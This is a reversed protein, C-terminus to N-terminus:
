SPREGRNQTVSRVSKRGTYFFYIDHTPTPATERGRSGVGGKRGEQWDRPCPLFGQPEGKLGVETCVRPEAKM